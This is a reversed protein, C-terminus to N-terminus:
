TSWNLIEGGARSAAAVLQDDSLVGNGTLARLRKIAAGNWCAHVARFGEEELFLPLGAMWALVERTEPAGLPFQKSRDRNQKPWTSM